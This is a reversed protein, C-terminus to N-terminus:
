NNAGDAFLRAYCHDIRTQEEDVWLSIQDLIRQTELLELAVPKSGSADSELVTPLWEPAPDQTLSSQVARYAERFPIGDVLVKRYAAHTAFVDPKLSAALRDPNPILSAPVGATVAFLERAQDITRILEPKTIQFDRHYGSPLGHGLDMVLHSRAVVERARARGMEIVDPNRKHPMASSGTVLAAKPTFYGFEETTFLALDWYYKELTTALSALWHTFWAEHRTRGGVADLTSPVVGAFGLRAATKEPHIAVPVGFGPGAGLPSRNLSQYLAPLMNLDEALPWVFALTWQALNSPMARRLHTYGAWAHHGQEEAFALFGLGLAVLDRGCALLQDRLYLRLTVAVQDNRSRGLHIRSGLIGLRRTLEIELYTQGDEVDDPLQSPAEAGITWLARVLERSEKESLFGGDALACAHAASARVDMPLLRADVWLDEGRLFTAFIGPPVDTKAWLTKM